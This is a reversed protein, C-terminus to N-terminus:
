ELEPSMVHCNIMIFLLLVRFSFLFDVVLKIQFLSSVRDMMEIQNRVPQQRGHYSSLDHELPVLHGSLTILMEGINSRLKFQSESDRAGRKSNLLTKKTTGGKWTCQQWIYQCPCLRCHTFHFVRRLAHSLLLCVMWSPLCFVFITM